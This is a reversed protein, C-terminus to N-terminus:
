RVVLETIPDGQRQFVIFNAALTELEDGTHVAIRHALQGGALAAAGAKRLMNVVSGVNAMGYDVVVIM